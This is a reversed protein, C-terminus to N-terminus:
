GQVSQCAQWARHQNCSCHELLHVCFVFACDAPARHKETQRADGVARLSVLRGEYEREDVGVPRPIQLPSLDHSEHHGTGLTSTSRGLISVHQLIQQRQIPHTSPKPTAPTCLAQVDSRTQPQTPSPQLVLIAQHCFFLEVLRAVVVWHQEGHKRSQEAPRIVRAFESAPRSCLLLSGLCQTVDLYPRTDICAVAM